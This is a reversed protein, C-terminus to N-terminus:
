KKILFTKVGFRPISIKMETSYRNKKITKNEIVNGRLDIEDVSSLPFDFIVKQLSDDGEANFLRIVIGDNLIRAACIQYGAKQFNILSKKDM